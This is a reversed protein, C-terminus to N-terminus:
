LAYSIRECDFYLQSIVTRVGGVRGHHGVVFGGFILDLQPMVVGCLSM